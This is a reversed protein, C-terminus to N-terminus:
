QWSHLSEPEFGDPRAHARSSMLSNATPCIYADKSSLKVHIFESEIQCAVDSGLSGTAPTPKASGSCRKRSRNDAESLRNTLRRIHTPMGKGAGVSNGSAAFEVEVVQKPLIKFADLWICHVDANGQGYTGGWASLDAYDEDDRTGGIRAGVINCGETPLAVVVTGDIQIRLLPM